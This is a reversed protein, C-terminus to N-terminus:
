DREFRLVRGLHKALTGLHPDTFMTLHDGPVEQLAVPQKCLIEWGLAPKRDLGEPGIEARFLTLLGDYPKPHYDKLVKGNTVFVDFRGRLRKLDFDGPIVGEKQAREIILRFQAEQDLDRLEPEEVQFNRGFFAGLDRSWASAMHRPEYYYSVSKRELPSTADFLVLREVTKGETELQRAMEYAIVGGMSWGALQYPGEGQVKKMEGIYFAAIAELCDMPTTDGDIGPSQFAYLPQERDLLNALLAYQFITGM